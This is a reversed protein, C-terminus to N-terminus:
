NVRVWTNQARPRIIIGPVTDAAVAYPNSYTFEALRALEDDRLFFDNKIVYPGGQMALVGTPNTKAGFTSLAGPSPVGNGSATTKTIRFSRALVRVGTTSRTDETVTVLPAGSIANISTQLNAATFTAATLNTGLNGNYVPQWFGATPAGTLYLGQIEALAVTGPQVRDVAVNLLPVGFRDTEYVRSADTSGPTDTTWRVNDIGNVEHIVLLLDSLQIASGFYQSRLYRDVADRVQLNTDAVPAGPSYMVTIDLKFYRIDSKHALVDTTVQKSGELSTQLDVINKDYTYDDIEIPTDAALATIITGTYGSLIGATDTPAMAPVKISWEIGSRARVTGGITSVDTIGWYHEGLNYTNTDVIISDPLDMVPQWYLPVFVNGIIPRKEPEGIRRYNEYHFKSNPNDLFATASTPRTLVTSSLTENDGDIYVDVANTINLSMDNRSAESMYSYELLLVDSPRIAQVSGNVGTYVNKFTINPQYQTPGTLAPTLSFGVTAQRFTDGKNRATVDLYNMSFDTDQRYFVSGLGATGNSIFVPVQTAYIFKAYPITSLATTYEGANGPSTELTGDGNIDYSANDAVPPVQIYERYHSQPGIVNVKTTFPTAVALAMYQDQTGALNRFVTNKFRVKLEEDSESNKGGSTAAENIVNTIGYIATGSIETITNAGVNGVSGALSSKVPVIVSTAGAPLTVDFLTYFPVSFAATTDGTAAINARVSSNAPIRIDLTSPTIRSFTVFGTAFTAQQRGFGFLNLFRDLAAGFKSNVDLAATLADIDIQNDSLAQAVTDLIKREPTGVEASVSPDLLRLQALMQLAIDRQLVAM